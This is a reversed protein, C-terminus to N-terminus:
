FYISITLTNSFKTHKNQQISHTQVSLYQGKVQKKKTIICIFIPILKVDESFFFIKESTMELAQNRQDEM